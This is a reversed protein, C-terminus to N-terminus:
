QMLHTLSDMRPFLHARCCWFKLKSKRKLNKLFDGNSPAHLRASVLFDEDNQCFLTQKTMFFLFHRFLQVFCCCFSAHLNTSNKFCNHVITEELEQVRLYGDLRDTYLPPSSPFPMGVIDSTTSM